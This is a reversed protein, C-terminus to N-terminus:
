NHTFKHLHDGDGLAVVKDVGADFPARKLAGAGLCDVMVVILNM